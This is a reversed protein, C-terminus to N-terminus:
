TEVHESYVTHIGMEEQMHDRYMDIHIIYNVYCM